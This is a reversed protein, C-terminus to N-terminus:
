VPSSVGEAKLYLKVADRVLASTTTGREDAMTCLTEYDTGDMVVGAKRLGSPQAMPRRGRKTAGENVISM